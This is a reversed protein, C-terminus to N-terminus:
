LSADVVAETIQELYKGDCVVDAAVAFRTSALQWSKPVEIRLDRRAKEGAIAM